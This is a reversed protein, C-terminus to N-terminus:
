SSKGEILASDFVQKLQDVFIFKLEKKIRSPIDELDKKNSKPLIITKLGARHAALVKEKVGGIELVRGRLTIEGTMGIEHKLPKKTLASVVASAIAVGASPGDKPVAGEPVHVHIDIKEAFDKELNYTQWHSRVYSIAAQCSEKMVDGLKGTLLVKGRGPMLAVEIFLIEGGAQTWALGTAKGVEDQSDAATKSYQAPGFLSRIRNVGIKKEVKKGEAIERALKRALRAMERQLQRVGAEKTYRDIIEYYAKATLEFKNKGLGCGQVEKPWLYDKAIHYKEEDTYGPFRIIEMRDLLAPPITDLVNGTTIFFVQSLDYPVGLYHDSFEKNQEPDLAELLAASPDGRFDNGVKDIEDLMFVPNITGAEKMGQILRGPLAGVYTRRHGRIEAEDRLGGLSVRVFERGMARAISKGVSTKGVGPPGVFCLITPSSVEEKQKSQLQIVALHELIREKIKKLGYHDQDLIKRAKKIDLNSKSKKAWPIDTLWELYSHIYGSEPNMPSMKALRSLESKAKEAVKKPMKSASIKKRLKEIEPNVSKSGMEGLERDIMERRQRLVAERMSKDFKDQAKSSIKQDLELIKIEQVLYEIVKQARKALDDIELLSQKDKGSIEVVMAIRNILEQPDDSSLNGLAQPDVPKGLSMAKKLQEILVGVLVNIDEGPANKGKPLPSIKGVLFPKKQSLSELRARNEGRVIVYIAKGSKLINDIKAITGIQYLDDQDPNNVRPNKQCVLLVAKKEKYAQNIAAVSQPRGFTLTAETRPFIVTDRLPIVAVEEQKQNKKEPKLILSM